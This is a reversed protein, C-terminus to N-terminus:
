GTKHAQMSLTIFKGQFSYDTYGSFVGLDQVGLDIYVMLGLGEWVRKWLSTCARRSRLAAAGERFGLGLGERLWPADLSTTTRQKAGSELLRGILVM